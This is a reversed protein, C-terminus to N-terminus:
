VFLTLFLLSCASHSHTKSAGFGNRCLPYVIKRREKSLSKIGSGVPRIMRYRRHIAPPIHEKTAPPYCFGPQFARISPLMPLPKQRRDIGTWGTRSHTWLRVRLLRRDTSFKLFSCLVFSIASGSATLAWFRPCALFSYFRVVLRFTLNPICECLEKVAM